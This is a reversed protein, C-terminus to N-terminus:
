VCICSTPRADFGVVCAECRTLRTGKKLEHQTGPASHRIGVTGDQRFDELSRPGVPWRSRTTLDGVTALRFCFCIDTM